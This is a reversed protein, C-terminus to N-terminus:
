FIELIKFYEVIIKDNDKLKKNNYIGKIEKYLKIEQYTYEIFMKFNDELDVVLEKKYHKPYEKYREYIDINDPIIVIFNRKGTLFDNITKNQYSRIDAMGYKKQKKNIYRKKNSKNDNIDKLGIFLLYKQVRRLYELQQKSYFQEEDKSIMFSEPFDYLDKVVGEFSHSHTHGINLKSKNGKAYTFYGSTYPYYFRTYAINELAEILNSNVKLKGDYNKTDTKYVKEWYSLESNYYVYELTQREEDWFPTPLNNQYFIDYRKIFNKFKNKNM